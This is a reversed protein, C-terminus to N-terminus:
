DDLHMIMEGGIIYYGWDDETFSLNNCILKSPKCPKHRDYLKYISNGNPYIGIENPKLLKHVNFNTDIKIKIRENLKM